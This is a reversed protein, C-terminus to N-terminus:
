AGGADPHVSWYRDLLPADVTAGHDKMPRLGAKKCAACSDIHKATLMPDKGGPVTPLVLVGCVALGHAVELHSLHHTDHLVSAVDALLTDTANM